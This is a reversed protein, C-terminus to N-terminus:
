NKICTKYGLLLNIFRMTTAWFSGSHNDADIRPHASIDEIWKKSSFMFGGDVSADTKFKEWSGLETIAQHVHLSYNTINDISSTCNCM